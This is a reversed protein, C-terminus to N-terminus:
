ENSPVESILIDIFQLLEPDHTEQDESERLLECIKQMQMDSGRLALRITERALGNLLASAICAM